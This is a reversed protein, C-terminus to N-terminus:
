TAEPKSAWLRPQIHQAVGNTKGVTVKQLAGQIYGEREEEPLFRDIPLRLESWLRFWQSSAVLM